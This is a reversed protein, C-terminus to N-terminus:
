EEEYDEENSFYYEEDRNSNYTYLHGYSQQEDKYFAESHAPSQPNHTMYISALIDGFQSATLTSLPINHTNHNNHMQYGTCFQQIWMGNYERVYRYVHPHVIAADRWDSFGKGRTVFTEYPDDDNDGLYHYIYTEPVHLTRSEYNNDRHKNPLSFRRVKKILFKGCPSFSINTYDEDLDHLNLKSIQSLQNNHKELETYLDNLDYKGTCYKIKGFSFNSKNGSTHLRIDPYEGSLEEYLAYALEVQAIREKVFEVRDMAEKSHNKINRARFAKWKSPNM